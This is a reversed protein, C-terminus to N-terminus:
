NSFNASMYYNVNTYGSLKIYYTGGSLSIVATEGEQIYLKSNFLRKYFCATVYTASGWLSFTITGSQPITIKFWDPTSNDIVGIMLTGDNRMSDALEVYNNNESEYNVARTVPLDVSTTDDFELATPDACNFLLTALVLVGLFLQVMKKFM